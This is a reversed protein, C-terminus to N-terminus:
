APCTTEKRGPAPLDPSSPPEFHTPYVPEWERTRWHTGTWWGEFKQEEISILTVLEGVKLPAEGIPRWAQPSPSAAGSDGSNGKPTAGTVLSASTIGGAPPSVRANEPVALNNSVGMAAKTAHFARVLAAYEKNFKESALNPNEDAIGTEMGQIASLLVELRATDQPAALDKAAQGASWGSRFGKEYIDETRYDQFGVRNLAEKVAAELAASYPTPTTM